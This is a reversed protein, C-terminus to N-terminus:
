VIQYSYIKLAMKFYDGVTDVLLWMQYSSWLYDSIMKFNNKFIHGIAVHDIHIEVYVIHYGHM